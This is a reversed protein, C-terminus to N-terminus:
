LQQICTTLPSKNKWNKKEYNKKGKKRQKRESLYVRTEQKSCGGYLHLASTCTCKATARQFYVCCSCFFLLFFSFFLYTLIWNMRYFVFYFEYAICYVFIIHMHLIRYMYVYTWTYIYTTQSTFCSFHFVYFFLCM